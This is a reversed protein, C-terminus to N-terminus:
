IYISWYNPPPQHLSLTETKCENLIRKTLRYRDHCLQHNHRARHIRIYDPHLWDTSICLLITLGCINPNCTRQHTNLSLSRVAACDDDDDPNHDDCSKVLKQLNEFIKSCVNFPTWSTICVCVCLSVCVCLCVCVCVYTLAAWTTYSDAHVDYARSFICKVFMVM